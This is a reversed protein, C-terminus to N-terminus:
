ISLRARTASGDSELRWCLAPDSPMPPPLERSRTLARFDASTCAHFLVDAVQRVAALAGWRSQWEDVDALLVVRDPSTTRFVERPDGSVSSLDIVTHSASLRDSLWLSRTSVIALPSHDDVEHESFSSHATLPNERLVVQVRHGQWTGGGPPVTDDHTAGDGGAM